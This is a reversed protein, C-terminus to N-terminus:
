PTYMWLDSLDGETGSAPEGYGGIMWVNGNADIWSSSALRAGPINGPAIMGQTGYAGDQNILNSGSMWTWEGNSYRWLDNLLGVGSASDVGNGGFFWFNGSSDTWSVAYQRWGPTNSPAAMGQTGYVALPYTTSSGSMWTWQGNSYKWLDNLVGGPGDSVFGAGGFLWLNGSLDIWGVALVRAGPVNGPAPVGQTGYVGNQNVLKSGSEWSWEGGSYKWLDNLEDIAGNSDYGIGGFLWFNGASDIWSVAGFRSGPINNASPIGLSGYVGQQDALDSGGL